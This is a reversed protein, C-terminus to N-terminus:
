RANAEQALAYALLREMREASIWEGVFGRQIGAVGLAKAFAKDSEPTDLRELIRTRELQESM